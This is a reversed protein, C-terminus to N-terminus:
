PSTWLDIGWIAAGVLSAIGLVKATLIMNEAFTLKRPAHLEPEVGATPDTVTMKKKAEM